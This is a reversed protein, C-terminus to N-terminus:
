SLVIRVPDDGASLLWARGRGHEAYPPLDRSASLVRYEGACSTDIVLDHDARVSALLRWHRQWDDPDGLLALPGEAVASPDDAYEDLTLSRIGLEAWASLLARAAQPRRTAIGTLAASPVWPDAREARDPVVARGDLAVQLAIGGLRGRGPPADPAYHAADGGAAVHDTRSATALVLRRPLLDGLKAAAGTLRQASALILIGAEGAGRFLRELREVLVHAHDPALRSTLTDLDDIVVVTGEPPPEEALAAVADWAGEGSTPVQVVRQAQGSLTRLATSRGSGPGGVVLLGRDGLHVGIPRQRQHEPEDSSGWCSSARAQAPGSILM